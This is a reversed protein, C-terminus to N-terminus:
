VLWLQRVVVFGAVLALCVVERVLLRREQQRSELVERDHREQSM